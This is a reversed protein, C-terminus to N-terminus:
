VRERCSARGIEEAGEFSNQCDPREGSILYYFSGAECLDNRDTFSCAPACAFSCFGKGAVPDSIHTYYGGIRGRYM